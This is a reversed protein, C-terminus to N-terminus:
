STLRKLGKTTQYLSFHYLKKSNQDNMITNAMDIQESISMGYITKDPLTITQILTPIFIGAKLPVVNSIRKFETLYGERENMKKSGIVRFERNWSYVSTDVSKEGYVDTIM